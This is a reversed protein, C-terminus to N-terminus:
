WQPWGFPRTKSVALEETHREGWSFAASVGDARRAQKAATGAALVEPGTSRQGAALNLM